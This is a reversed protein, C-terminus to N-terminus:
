IRIDITNQTQHNEDKKNEEVNKKKHAQKKSKKSKKKESDKKNNTIKQNEETKVITDKKKNTEEKMIQAFTDQQVTAKQNDVQQKNSLQPTQPYLIQTDIPRLM